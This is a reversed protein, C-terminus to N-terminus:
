GPWQRPHVVGDRGNAFAWHWLCSYNARQYHSTLVVGGCNHNTTALTLLQANIKEVYEFM